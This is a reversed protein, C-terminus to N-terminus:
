NQDINQLCKKIMQASNFATIVITLDIKSSINKSM